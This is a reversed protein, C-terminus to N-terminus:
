SDRPPVDGNRFRCCRCRTGCGSSRSIGRHFRHVPEIGGFVGGTEKLAERYRETDEEILADMVSQAVYLRLGQDKALGDPAKLIVARVEDEFTKMGETHCGMCSLGM